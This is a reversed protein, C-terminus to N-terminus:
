SDFRQFVRNGFRLLTFTPIIIARAPIKIEKYIPKRKGYPDRTNTYQTKKNDSYTEQKTEKKKKKKEIQRSARTNNFLLNNLETFQISLIPQCITTVITM